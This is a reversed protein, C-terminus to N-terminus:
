KYSPIWYIGLTDRGDASVQNTANIIEGIKATMDDVSTQNSTNEMENLSTQLVNIRDILKSNACPVVNKPCMQM